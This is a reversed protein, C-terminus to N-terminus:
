GQVLNISWDSSPFILACKDSNTTYKSLAWYIRIDDGFSKYRWRNSICYVMCQMDNEFSIVTVGTSCCSACTGPPCIHFSSGGNM